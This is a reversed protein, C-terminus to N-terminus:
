STFPKDLQMKTFELNKNERYIKKEVTSCFNKQTVKTRPKNLM